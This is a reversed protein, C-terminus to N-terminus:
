LLEEAEVDEAWEGRTGSIHEQIMMICSCAQVGYIVAIRCYLCSKQWLCFEALPPVGGSPVMGRLLLLPLHLALPSRRRALFASFVSKIGNDM